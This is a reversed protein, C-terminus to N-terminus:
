FGGSSSLVLGSDELANRVHDLNNEPIDWRYMDNNFDCKKLEGNVEMFSSLPKGLFLSNIHNITIYNIPYIERFYGLRPWLGKRTNDRWKTIRQKYEHNSKGDLRKSSAMIASLYSEPGFATPFSWVGGYFRGTLTFVNREIYQIFSKSDPIADERVYICAAKNKRTGSSWVVGLKSPCFPEEIDYINDSLIRIDRFETEDSTEELFTALKKRVRNYRGHSRKDALSGSGEYPVLGFNLFIKEIVNLLEIGLQNEWDYLMVCIAKPGNDITEPFIGKIM